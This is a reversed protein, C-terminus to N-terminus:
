LGISPMKVLAQCVAFLLHEQAILPFNKEPICFIWSKQCDFNLKSLFFNALNDSLNTHIKLLEKRFLFNVINTGFSYLRRLM